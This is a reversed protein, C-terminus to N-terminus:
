AFGYNIGSFGFALHLQTLSVAALATAGIVLCNLLAFGEGKLVDRHIGHGLEHDKLPTQM